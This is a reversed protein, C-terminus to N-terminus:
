TVSLNEQGQGERLVLGENIAFGQWQVYDRLCFQEVLAGCGGKKRKPLPAECHDSPIGIIRGTNKPM